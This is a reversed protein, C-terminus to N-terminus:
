RLFSAHAQYVWVDFDYGARAERRRNAAGPQHLAQPDADRTEIQLYNRFHTRLFSPHM